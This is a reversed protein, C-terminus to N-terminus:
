QRDCREGRDTRLLLSQVIGRSIQDSPIRREPRQRVKEIIAAKLENLLQQKRTMEHQVQKAIM